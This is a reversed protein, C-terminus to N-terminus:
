CSAMKKRKSTQVVAFALIMVAVLISVASGAWTTIWINLILLCITVLVWLLDGVSFYLVLLKSPLPKFSAWLLHFGNVLLVGGLVILVNDPAPSSQSLFIAVNSPMFLFIIAFIICSVANARLVSKLTIM